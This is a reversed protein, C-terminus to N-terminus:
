PRDELQMVPYENGLPDKRIVVRWRKGETAEFEEGSPMVLSGWVTDHGIATAYRHDDGSQVPRCVVPPLSPPKKM